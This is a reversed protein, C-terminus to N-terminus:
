TNTFYVKRQANLIKIANKRGKIIAPNKYPLESADMKSIAKPRGFSAIQPLFDYSPDM